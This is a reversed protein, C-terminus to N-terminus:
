GKSNKLDKINIELMQGLELKELMECALEKIDEDVLTFGKVKNQTGKVMRKIHPLTIVFKTTLLSLPKSLYLIGDKQLPISFREPTIIKPIPKPNEGVYEFSYCVRTTDYKFSNYNLKNKNEINYKKMNTSTPKWLKSKERYNGLKPHASKSFYRKDNKIYFEGTFDSFKTGIQLNQYEPKVVLRHERWCNPQRGVQSLASNFAVMEEKYSAVYMHAALNIEETLYHTNKFQSWIEKKFEKRIKYVKINGIKSEFEGIYEGYNKSSEFPIVGDEYLYGTNTDFVWDPKLLSIIDKSNTACTIKINKDKVYKHVGACLSYATARDLNSTFEDYIINDNITAAINARYKQGNSLVFFPKVWDPITNLGCAFLREFAEEKESFHSIIAEDNCWEFSPEEGLYKLLSTKGTGSNGVILGINYNKPLYKEDFEYFLSTGDFEYDFCSQALNTMENLNVKSQLPVKKRPIIIM